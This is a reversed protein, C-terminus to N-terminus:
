NLKWIQTEIMEKFEDTTTGPNIIQEWEAEDRLVDLGKGNKRVISARGKFGSQKQTLSYVDGGKSDSKIGGKSRIWNLINGKNSEDKFYKELNKVDEEPISDAYKEILIKDDDLITVSIEKGITYGIKALWNGLLRIESRPDGHNGRSYVKMKHSTKM